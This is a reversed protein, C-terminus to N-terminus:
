TEAMRDNLFASRLWWLHTLHELSKDQDYCKTKQMTIAKKIFTTIMNLDSSQNEESKLRWSKNTSYFVDSHTLWYTVPNSFYFPFVLKSSNM